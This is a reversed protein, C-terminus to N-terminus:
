ILSPLLEDLQAFTEHMAEASGTGAAALAEATPYRESLTLATGASSPTFTVTTVSGSDGSEENTWVIKTPATVEIYRGFFVMSNGFDLRYTGGTRIDMESSYLKINMSRPLWWSLFLDPKQWASFVVHPPADFKRTVVIERDSIKEIKTLYKM